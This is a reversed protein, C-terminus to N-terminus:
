RVHLTFYRCVDQCNHLEHPYRSWIGAGRYDACRSIYLGLGRYADRGILIEVMNILLVILSEILRWCNGLDGKLVRHRFSRDDYCARGM